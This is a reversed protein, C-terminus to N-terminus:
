AGCPARAGSKRNYRTCRSMHRSATGDGQAEPRSHSATVRPVCVSQRHINVVCGDGSCRDGERLVAGPIPGLRM